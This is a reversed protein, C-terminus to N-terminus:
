IVREAAAQAAAAAVADAVVRAGHAAFVITYHNVDSVLLAERRGPDAAAWTQALEFPQMPHPDDIMGRPAVLLAAPLALQDADPEGFLDIGDDRVVQPNISSRMEGAPGVLDHAAYADLDGPDIDDAALAPHSAWWQRYAAVDDFTMELRDLTPGLFARIFAEPDEVAATEPITLGGDVLVLRSVRDPHTVALRTAVYAGLSHGTVVAREIGAADLVAVMDRVHADLGFPAPLGASRSRGRLDIALLGARDGLERATALWTRSSSTIGHIALVRQQDPVDAALRFAALRGGDVDAELDIVDTM